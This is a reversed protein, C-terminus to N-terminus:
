LTEGRNNCNSSGWVTHHSNADCSIVLDLGEAECDGILKKVEQSPLAQKADGPFYASCVVIKRKIGEKRRFHIVVTTLDRGCHKARVDSRVGKM